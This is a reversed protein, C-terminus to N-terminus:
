DDTLWFRPDYVISKKEDDDDDKDDDKDSLNYGSSKSKYFYMDSHTYCYEFATSSYKSKLLKKYFELWVELIAKNNETENTGEKEMHEM